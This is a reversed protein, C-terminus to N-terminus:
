GYPPDTCLLDVTNDPLEKLTELCDGNILKSTEM